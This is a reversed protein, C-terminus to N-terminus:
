AVHLITLIFDVVNPSTPVPDGGTVTQPTSPPPPPPPPTSQAIAARLGPATLALLTLALTLKRASQKSM